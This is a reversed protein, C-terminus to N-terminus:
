LLVMQPFRRVALSGRDDMRPVDEDSEDKTYSSVISLLDANVIVLLKELIVCASM